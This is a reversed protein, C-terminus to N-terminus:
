FTRQAWSPPSQEQVSRAQGPHTSYTKSEQSDGSKAKNQKIANLIEQKLQNDYEKNIFTIHPFYKYSGDQQKTQEQPLSIWEQEGRVFHCCNNIQMGETKPNVIVSFFARLSGKNVERYRGIEVKIPNM